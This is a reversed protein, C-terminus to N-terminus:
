IESSQNEPHFKRNIGFSLCPSGVYGNLHRAPDNLCHASYEIKTLTNAKGQELWEM